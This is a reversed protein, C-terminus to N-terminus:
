AEGLGVPEQGTRGILEREAERWCLSIEMGVEHFDTQGNNPKRPVRFEILWLLSCMEALTKITQGDWVACKGSM